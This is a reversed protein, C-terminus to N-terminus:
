EIGHLRADMEHFALSRLCEKLLERGNADTFSRSQLTDEPDM